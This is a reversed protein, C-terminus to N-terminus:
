KGVVIKGAAGDRGDILIRWIYIGTQVRKAAWVASHRGAPMVGSVIEAIHRGQLDVINVNVRRADQLAYGIVANGTSPNYNVKSPSSTVADIGGCRTLTANKGYGAAVINAQVADDISDPPNGGNPMYTGPPSPSLDNHQPSQDYVLPITGTTGALFSDQAATNAMGGASLVGIDKTKNDSKRKVQYLPGNYSSYLARATSHASVCPTGGAAYIDCPCPAAVSIIQRVMIM